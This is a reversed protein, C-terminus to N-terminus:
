TWPWCSIILAGAAKMQALSGPAPAANNQRPSAEADPAAETGQVFVVERRRRKRRDSGVMKQRFTTKQVPYGHAHQHLTMTRIGNTYSTNSRTEFKSVFWALFGDRAPLKVPIETLWNCPCRTFRLGLPAQAWTWAPRRTFTPASFKCICPMQLLACHSYTRLTLQSPLLAYPLLMNLM